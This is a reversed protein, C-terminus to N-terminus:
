NGPGLVAGREDGRDLVPRQASGLEVRFLGPVGAGAQQVVPHLGKAPRGHCALPLDAFGRGAAGSHPGNDQHAEGAQQYAAGQGEPLLMLREPSLDREVDKGAHRQEGGVQERQRFILQRGAPWGPGSGALRRRVGRGGVILIM